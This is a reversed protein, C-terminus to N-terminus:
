GDDDVGFKAVAARPVVAAASAECDAGGEIVVAAELDNVGGGFGSNDRVGGFDEM